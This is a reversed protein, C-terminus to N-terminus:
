GWYSPSQGLSMTDRDDYRPRRRKQRGGYGFDPIYDGMRASERKLRRINREREIERREIEEQSLVEVSPAWTEAFGTQDVRWGADAGMAAMNDVIEPPWHGEAIEKKLKLVEEYLAHAIAPLFEGSLGLDAVVTRAFDSPTLDSGLDWEFKDEYLQKDLNVSLHLIVHLGDGPIQVQAFAAYESLQQRISSVIAHTFSVPLDLDQCTILAFQEPTLAEENLDWLFFDTIRFNNHELSLRLPVLVEEKTALDALQRDTYQVHKTRVAAKKVERPAEMAGAGPTGNKEAGSGSAGYSEDDEDDEFEELEAYSLVGSSAARKTARALPQTSVFFSTKGLRLRSAFGTLGAQTPRAMQM